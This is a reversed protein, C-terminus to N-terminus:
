ISLGVNLISNEGGFDDMERTLITPDPMKEEGNLIYAFRHEGPELPLTIEWYGSAGVKKLPQRQWNNFSGALEVKSADPQFIVFRNDQFPQPATGTWPLNLLVAIMFGAAALALPKVAGAALRGLGPQPPERLPQIQKEQFLLESTLHYFAPDIHIQDIFIQKEDLTMEDDIYMSSLYEM